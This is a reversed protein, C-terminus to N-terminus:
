SDFTSDIAKVDLGKSTDCYQKLLNYEPGEKLDNVESDEEDEKLKARHSIILM